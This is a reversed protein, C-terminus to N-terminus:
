PSLYVKNTNKKYINEVAITLGMTIWLFSGLHPAELTAGFLSVVLIYVVCSLLATSYIRIKEDECDYKIFRIIRRFFNSLILIFILFGIIGTKYTMNLISNHPAVWARKKADGTLWGKAELSYPLFGKGFGWGFLPKISIAELMERWLFLRYRSNGAASTVMKDYFIISAAEKRLHKLLSPKLIGASVILIIGVLLIRVFVKKIKKNLKGKTVNHLYFLFLFSASLAVWSARCEYILVALLQLFVISIFFVKHERKKLSVLCLSEFIMALCLYFYLFDGLNGYKNLQFNVKFFFAITIIFCATFILKLLKEIKEMTDFLIPTLFYFVSYYVMASHRLALMTSSSFLGRALCIFGILYFLKFEKKLPINQLYKVRGGSAVKDVFLRSITIVLAIETIYLPLPGIKINLYAFGKSFLVLGVIVLSILSGKYKIECFLMFLIVAVVFMLDLPSIATLSGILVPTNIM